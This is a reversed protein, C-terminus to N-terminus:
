SRKESTGLRLELYWFLGLLLFGLAFATPGFWDGWAKMLTPVNPLIPISVNLTAQQGVPTQNTIEGDPLILTSIGTNTSRLQPLRTEIGRFAILSLHLKPEGWPGFWSDNTINLILQSGKRAAPIVYNPFLAEYCIVPSAKVPGGASEPRPITLVSPGEGRGFNGVQPFQEKLWHFQEAGPIYEGFLLLINKRYVQLDGDIAIRGDGGAKPALFFFANFDKGNAHDYGGFLLPVGRKHVFGELEEDRALEETSQPNRFTSPYSTEPWVIFDPRPQSKLAEDSMQFFTDLIKRAAEKLGRESALKDIDGVNAQIVSAQIRNTSHETLERIQHFRAGGYIESALLLALALALEVGCSQLVPWLSPERRKRFSRIARYLAHNVFFILFTLLAPGGIDAVQRLYEAKYLCHGLTDVFLKPLIWDLGAYALAMVLGFAAAKMGLRWSKSAKAPDFYRFVPAFILFQPQGVISYLVLGFIAVSWPLNGFEQLVYAVWYFGGLSMFFSLWMGERLAQAYTKARHLTFFWPILAIWILPSLEWPTFSIVILFASM